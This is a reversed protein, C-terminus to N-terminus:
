ATPLASPDLGRLDALKWTSSTNFHDDGQSSQLSFQVADPQDTTGLSWSGNQVAGFAVPALLALVAFVPASRM